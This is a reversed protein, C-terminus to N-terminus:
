RYQFDPSAIRAANKLSKPISTELNQDIMSFLISESWTENVSVAVRPIDGNFLALAFNMRQIALDPQRWTTSNEPYGSPAPYAFLPQGMESLRWNLSKPAADLLEIGYGLIAVGELTMRFNQRDSSSFPLIESNTARLSSVIFEFPSKLKTRYNSTQWFDRSNFITKLMAKIDGGTALFVEAVQDVLQSPPQDNVFRQVLKYAIHKATSPHRALYILIKEGAAQGNDNLRQGLVLKPEGDHNRRNFAFEGNLPNFGWGTFVRSVEIVDQQQYGGDVGLTHLELLERGYNENLGGIMGEANGNANVSDADVGLLWRVAISRLKKEIWGLKREVANQNNDLYFLMAPSKASAMLLDQFNGLAHQRIVDRDDIVKLPGSAAKGIDINFHNSWFDVMVEYLQRQSHVARILKTNQLEGMARLDIRQMVREFQQAQSLPQAAKINASERLRELGLRRQAEADMGAGMQGETIFTKIRDYYARILVKADLNVSEYPALKEVLADDNITKPNLQKELYTEIGIRRVETISAPTPGFSIRHLFHLTKQDFDDDLPDAFVLDSDVAIFAILTFLLSFTLRKM